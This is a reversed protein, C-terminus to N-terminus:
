TREGSDSDCHSRLFSIDKILRDDTDASAKAPSRYRLPDTQLRWSERLANVAALFWHRFRPQFEELIQRLGAGLREELEKRFHRASAAQSTRALPGPPSLTVGNLPSALPLPFASLEPLEEAIVGTAHGNEKLEKIGAGVQGSLEQYAKLFPNCRSAVALVVARVVLDSFIGGAQDAGTSGRALDSAAQELIKEAWGSIKDIEHEWHHQFSALCEDTRRLIRETDQSLGGSAFSRSSTVELTALLSACLSQARRGVAEILTERSRLLRPSIMQEFWANVRPVWSEASSLPIVEPVSGLREAIAGRTYALVREVDKPSLLDCKSIIVLWPIGATHLARLLDLDEHGHPSQGDVLVLGLDSDPLYAHSFETASNLLAGFGPAAVFALGEHLRRSAVSAELVMVRKSNAPNQEETAFEPLRTVPLEESHDVFSVRLRPESGAIIHIPVATMPIAGVPLLEMELLRNILSSKGSAAKGFVAIEYQHSQVRRIIANLAPLFEVMGHHTIIQTMRELLTTLPQATELHGLGNAQAARSDTLFALLRSVLRRIEQLTWALDRAAAPDMKGYGRMKEPYIDELTLDLSTLGTRIKGSCLTATSPREIGCKELLRSMQERIKVAYSEVWRAEQPSLDHVYGSFLSEAGPALAHLSDQLLRDAYQLSTLIRRKSNDNLGAM